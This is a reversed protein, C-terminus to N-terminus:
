FKAECSIMCEASTIGTPLTDNKLLTYLTKATTMMQDPDFQPRACDWYTLEKCCSVGARRPKGIFFLNRLTTSRKTSMVAHEVFEGVISGDVLGDAVSALIGVAVDTGLRKGVGVDIGFATADVATGASPCGDLTQLDVM